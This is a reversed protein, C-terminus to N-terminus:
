INRITFETTPWLRDDTPINPLQLMLEGGIPLDEIGYEPIEYGMKKWIVKVDVERSTYSLDLLSPYEM